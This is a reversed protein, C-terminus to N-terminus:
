HSCELMDRFCCGPSQPAIKVLALAALPLLSVNKVAIEGMNSSSSSHRKWFTFLICFGVLTLCLWPLPNSQLCPNSLFLASGLSSSSFLLRLPPSFSCFAFPPPLPSFSFLLLSWVSCTRTFYRTDNGLSISYTSPSGLVFVCM